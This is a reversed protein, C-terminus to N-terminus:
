HCFPRYSFHGQAYYVDVEEVLSSTNFTGNEYHDVVLM